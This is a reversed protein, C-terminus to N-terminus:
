GALGGATARAAATDVSLIDAHAHPSRVVVGYAQRPRALDATFRGEGVVFRRDEIRGHGHPHTM